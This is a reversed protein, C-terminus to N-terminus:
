MNGRERPNPPPIPASSRRANQWSLLAFVAAVVLVLAGLAITSWMWWNTGGSSAVEVDLLRDAIQPYGEEMLEGALASIADPPTTEDGADPGTIRGHTEIYASSASNASQELRDYNGAPTTVIIELLRFPRPVQVEHEYDDRLTRTKGSRPAQGKHEVTIKMEGDLGPITVKGPQLVKREPLGPERVIEVESHWEVLETELLLTAETPTKLKFECSGIVPTEQHAHSDSGTDIKTDGEGDDNFDLWFTCEPDSIDVSEGGDQLPGTALLPHPSLLLLAVLLLGALWAAPRVFRSNGAPM